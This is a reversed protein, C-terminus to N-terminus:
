VWSIVPSTPQLHSLFEPKRPLFDQTHGGDREHWMILYRRRFSALLWKNGRRLALHEVRQMQLHRSPGTVFRQYSAILNPLYILLKICQNIRVTSQQTKRNLNITSFLMDVVIPRVHQMRYVEKCGWWWFPVRGRQCRSYRDGGCMCILLCASFM